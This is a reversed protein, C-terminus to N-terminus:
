SRPKKKKVKEQADMRSHNVAIWWIVILLNIGIVSVTFAGPVHFFLSILIILLAPPQILILLKSAYSDKWAWKIIESLRRDSM